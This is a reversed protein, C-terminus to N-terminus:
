TAKRIGTSVVLSFNKWVYSKGSLHLKLVINRKERAIKKRRAVNNAESM